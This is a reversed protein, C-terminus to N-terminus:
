NGKIYHEGRKDLAKVSKQFEIDVVADVPDHVFQKNDALQRQPYNPPVSPGLDYLRRDFPKVTVSRHKNVFNVLNAEAMDDDAHAAISSAIAFTLFALILLLRM